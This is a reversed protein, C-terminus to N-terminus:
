ANESPVVYKQTLQEFYEHLAADDETATLLCGLFGRRLPHDCAVCALKSAIYGPAAVVDAASKLFNGLRLRAHPTLWLDTSITGLCAKVM